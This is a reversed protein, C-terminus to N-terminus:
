GQPFLLNWRSKEDRHKGGFGTGQWEGDCHKIVIDEAVPILSRESIFLFRCSVDEIDIGKRNEIKHCHENLRGRLAEIGSAKGGYAPKDKWYLVYVGDKVPAVDLTLAHVPTAKLKRVVERCVSIAIHNAWIDHCGCWKVKDLSRRQDAPYAVKGEYAWANVDSKRGSVAHANMETESKLILRVTGPVLNLGDAKLEVRFAIGRHVAIKVDSTFQHLDCM